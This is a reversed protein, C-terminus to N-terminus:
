TLHKHRGTRIEIFEILAALGIGSTLAIFIVNSISLAYVFIAAAGVLRIADRRNEAEVFQSYVVLIVGLIAVIQVLLDVSM